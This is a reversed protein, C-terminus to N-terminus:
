RGREAARNVHLIKEDPKIYNLCWTCQHTCQFIATRFRRHKLPIHPFEIGGRPVMYKEGKFDIAQLLTDYPLNTQKPTGSVPAADYRERGDAWKLYM